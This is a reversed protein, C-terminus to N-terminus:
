GCVTIVYDWEDKLYLDVSKPQNGSIDIGAEAMVKIANPNVWIAPETGASYVELTKDFSQLWGHAM